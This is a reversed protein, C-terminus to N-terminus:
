SFAWFETYSGRNTSKIKFWPDKKSALCTGLKEGQPFNSKPFIYGCFVEAQAANSVASTALLFCIIERNPLLPKGPTTMM